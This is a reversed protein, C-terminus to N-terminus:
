NIELAQCVNDQRNRTLRDDFVIENSYLKDRIYIIACNSGNTPSASYTITACEDYAKSM